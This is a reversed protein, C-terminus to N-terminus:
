VWVSGCAFNYDQINYDKHKEVASSFVSPEQSFQLLANSSNLRRKIDDQILNQNTVITGLYKFQSLNEFSRNATKIDRYQAANWHHSLLM